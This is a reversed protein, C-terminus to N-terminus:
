FNFPFPSFPLFQKITNKYTTDTFSPVKKYRFDGGFTLVQHPDLPVVIPSGVEESGASNEMSTDEVPAAVAKTSTVLDYISYIAGIATLITGAVAIVPVAWGATAAALSTAGAVMRMIFRPAVRSLRGGLGMAGRLASPPAQMLRGEEGLTHALSSAIGREAVAFSRDAAVRAANATARLRPQNAFQNNALGRYKTEMGRARQMMKDYFELEERGGVSRSIPHGGFDFERSPFNFDRPDYSPQFPM